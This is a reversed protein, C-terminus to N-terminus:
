KKPLTTGSSGESAAINKAQKGTLKIDAFPNSNAVHTEKNKATHREHTQSSSSGESVAFPDPERTRHGVGGLDVDFGVGVSSGGEHNGRGHHHKDGEKKGGEKKHAQKEGGGGGGGGGGCHCVGCKCPNCPCGAPKAFANGTLIFGIAAIALSCIFAHPKM